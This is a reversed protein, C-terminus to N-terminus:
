RGTVADLKPRLLPGGNFMFSLLTSRAVIQHVGVSFLATLLIIVIFELEPWWKTSLFALALLGVFPRHFLYITFSADVLIRVMRNPRDMFSRLMALAVQSLLIASAGRCFTSLVANVNGDRPALWAYVAAAVVGFVALKLNYTTAVSFVAANSYLLVGAVFYPFYTLFNSLDIIGGVPTMFDKAFRMAVGIALMWIGSLVAAGCIMLPSAKELARINRIQGGLKPWALALLLSFVILVPLFWLHRVWHSGPTSFLRYFEVAQQAPPVSPDALVSIWMQVPNLLITAFILPVGLRLLRGAAWDGPARRALMMASFYGAIIFFAPMRFTHLFGGIWELLSSTDPSAVGWDASASYVLTAHFPIGLLMFLARGSDMFYLRANSM